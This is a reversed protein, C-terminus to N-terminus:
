EAVDVGRYVGPVLRYVVGPSVRNIALQRLLDTTRIGTGFQEETDRTAASKAARISVLKGVGIM